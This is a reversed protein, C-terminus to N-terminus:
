EHLRAFAAARAHLSICFNRIGVESNPESYRGKAGSEAGSVFFCTNAALSDLEVAALVSFGADKLGQTLGGCGSFLDVATLVPLGKRKTISGTM